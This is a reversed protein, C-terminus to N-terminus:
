PVACTGASVRVPPAPVGAIGAGEMRGERSGMDNMEPEIDRDIGQRMQADPRYLTAHELRPM